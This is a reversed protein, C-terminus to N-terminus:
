SSEKSHKELFPGISEKEIEGAAVDWVFKEFTDEEVILEFGNMILFVLATTAGTRKNGDIFPHNKVLHFLYAGAMAFLGQHLYEGGFQSQPQALASSLLGEDRVGNAGGYLELQNEHILLVDDVTIFDPESTM